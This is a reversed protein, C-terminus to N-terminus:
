LEEDEPAWSTWSCTETAQCPTVGYPALSPSVRLMREPQPVGKGVEHTSAGVVQCRDLVTSLEM